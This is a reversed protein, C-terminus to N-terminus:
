AAVLDAADDAAPLSITFTSGRGVESRVDVRGGMADLFERVLYLGVGTGRIDRHGPDDVRYFRQFLRPIDAPPIGVGEDSVEIAVSAGAFGWRIGITGGGPSYKAANEALNFLVQSLRDSDGLVAAHEPGRPVFHHRPWAPALQMRIAEVLPAIRVVEQQLKLGGAEIRAVNLMDTAVRSLRGAEVGILRAWAAAEEPIDTREALLLAFGLIGTLPTRLEHSALAVFETKMREVQLEATVDTYSAIVHTVSGSERLPASNARVYIESGDKRRIGVIRNRSAYGDVFARVTPLEDFTPISGDQRLFTVGIGGGVARKGLAFERTVGFYGAAEDNIDAIRSKADYVVLGEALTDMLSQLRQEGFQARADARGLSQQLERNKSLLEDSMLDLTHEIMSRDLDAQEYAESVADLLGAVNPPPAVTGLHRRLQRLLLRHM